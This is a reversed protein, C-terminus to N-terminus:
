CGWGCPHHRVPSQHGAVVGLFFVHAAPREEKQPLARVVGRSSYGRGGHCEWAWKQSLRRNVVGPCAGRKRALASSPDQQIQELAVTKSVAATVAHGRCTLM